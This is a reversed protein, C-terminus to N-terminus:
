KQKIKKSNTKLSRGFKGREQYTKEKIESLKLIYKWNCILIRDELYTYEVATQEIEGM